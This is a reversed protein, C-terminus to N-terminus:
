CKFELPLRYERLRMCRVRRAREKELGSSKEGVAVELRSLLRLGSSTRGRVICTSECLEAARQLHKPPPPLRPPPLPPHLPVPPSSTASSPTSPSTPSPILSPSPRSSHPRLPPSTGSRRLLVPHARSNHLGILLRCAGKGDLRAFCVDSPLPSFLWPWRLRGYRSSHPRVADRLTDAPGDALREPTQM